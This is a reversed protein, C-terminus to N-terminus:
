PIIIKEEFIDHYYADKITETMIEAAKKWHSICILVELCLNKYTSLVVSNIKFFDVFIKILKQVGNNSIFLEVHRKMQLM